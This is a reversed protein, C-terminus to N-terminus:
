YLRFVELCVYSVFSHNPGDHCMKTTDSTRMEVIRHVARQRCNETERAASTLCGIM